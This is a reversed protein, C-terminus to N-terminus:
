GPVFHRATLMYGVPLVNEPTIPFEKIYKKPPINSKMFHGIQPKKLKKINESGAGIQL